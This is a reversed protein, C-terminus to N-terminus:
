ESTCSCERRGAAGRWAVHRCLERYADAVRAHSFLEGGCLQGNVSMRLRRGGQEVLAYVADALAQYDGHPVVIGCGTREVIERASTVEFIVVPTGWTISEIMARPLGEWGSALVTLLAGEVWKSVDDVHGVFEVREGGRLKRAAQLCALAYPDTNPDYDGLFILECDLRDLIQQAACELFALQGKKPCVAGVYLICGSEREAIGSEVDSNAHEAAAAPKKPTVVSYIYSIPTCKGRGLFTRREHSGGGDHAEPQRRCVPLRRSLQQVMESSLTLVHDAHRVALHWKLGYSSNSPKVDRINLIVPVSSFALLVWGEEMPRDDNLHVLEVCEKKVLRALELGSVVFRIARRVTGVSDRWHPIVYVSYGEERLEQARRTMGSTVVVCDRPEFGRILHAVSTVGGDSRRSGEYIVVATRPADRGKDIRLKGM